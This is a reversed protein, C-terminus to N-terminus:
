KRKIVIMKPVLEHMEIELSLVELLETIAKSAVFSEAIYNVSVRDPLNFKLLVKEKQQNSILEIMGFQIAEFLTDGNHPSSTDEVECVLLVELINKPLEKELVEEIEETIKNAAHDRNKVIPKLLRELVDADAVNQLLQPVLERLSNTEM